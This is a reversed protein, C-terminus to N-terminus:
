SSAPNGILRTHIFPTVLRNFITNFIFFIFVGAPLHMAIPLFTFCAGRIAYEVYKRDRDSISAPNAGSPTMRRSSLVMGATSMLPILGTPDPLALSECWLIPSELGFSTFSSPHLSMGRLALFMTASWPAQCLILYGLGQLPNATLGKTKMRQMYERNISEVLAQDRLLVAEKAM